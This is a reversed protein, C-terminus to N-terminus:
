VLYDGVLVLIITASTYLISLIWDVRHTKKFVLFFLSTIWILLVMIMLPITFLEVVFSIITNIWDPLYQFTSYYAILMAICLLGIQSLLRALKPLNNGNITEKWYMM